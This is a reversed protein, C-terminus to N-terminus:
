AKDNENWFPNKQPKLMELLIWHKIRDDEFIFYEIIIQIFSM